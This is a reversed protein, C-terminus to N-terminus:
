AGVKSDVAMEFGRWPQGAVGYFGLICLGTLEPPVGSDWLTGAPYVLTTAAGDTVELIFHNVYPAPHANTVSLNVTGIDSVVHLKGAKLDVVGGAVTVKKSPSEIAVWEAGQETVYKFHMERTVPNYWLKEPITTAPMAEQVIPVLLTSVDNGVPVNNLHLKWRGGTRIMKRTTSINFIQGEIPNLPFVISM